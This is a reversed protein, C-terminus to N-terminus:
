RVLALISAVVSIIALLFLGLDYTRVYALDESISVESRSTEYVARQVLFLGGVPIAHALIAFIPMRRVLNESEDAKMLALRPRLGILDIRPLTRQSRRM